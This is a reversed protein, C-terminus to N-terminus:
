AGRPSGERASSEAPVRRAAITCPARAQGGYHLRFVCLMPVLMWIWLHDNRWMFLPSAGVAAHDIQMVVKVM